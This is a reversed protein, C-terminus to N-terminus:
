RRRCRAARGRGRVSRREFSVVSELELDEEDGQANRADPVQGQHPGM